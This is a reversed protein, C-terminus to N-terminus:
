TRESTTVEEQQKSRHSQEREKEREEKFSAPFNYPPKEQGEERECTLLQEFLSHRISKLNSDQM